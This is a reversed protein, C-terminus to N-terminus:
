NGRTRTCPPAGTYVSPSVTNYYQITVDTRVIYFVFITKYVCANATLCDICRYASTFSCFFFFAIGFVKNSSAARGIFLGPFRTFYVM